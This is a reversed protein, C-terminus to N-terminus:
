AEDNMPFFFGILKSDRKLHTKGTELYDVIIMNKNIIKQVGHKTQLHSRVEKYNLLVNWNAEVCLKCRFICRNSLGLKQVGTVTTIQCPREPKSAIDNAELALRPIFKTEIYTEMFSYGQQQKSQWYNFPPKKFSPCYFLYQVLPASMTYKTPILSYVKLFIDYQQARLAAYNRRDNYENYIINQFNAWHHETFLQTTSPHLYKKFTPCRRLEVKVELDSRRADNPVISSLHCIVSTLRAKNDLKTPPIKCSEAIKNHHELEKKKKVIWNSVEEENLNVFDRNAAEVASKWYVRPRNAQEIFPVGALCSDHIIKEEKIQKSTVTREILCRKCCRVRFVWYIKAPTETPLKGHPEIKGAGCFQCGLEILYLSIYCQESIGRPPSKLNPMFLKRSTSWIQETGFNSPALLWWRFKKCVTTLTVLDIPPVFKCINIFVECPIDMFMCERKPPKKSVNAM